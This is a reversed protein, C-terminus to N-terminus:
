EDEKVVPTAMRKELDIEADWDELLNAAQMKYIDGLGVALVKYEGNKLEALTPSTSIRLENFLLENGGPYIFDWDKGNEQCYNFLQRCPACSETSFVVFKRKM